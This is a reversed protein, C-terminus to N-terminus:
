RLSLTKKLDTYEAADIEGRALREDLIAQAGPGRDVSTPESTRTGRFIMVVALVLLGWFIVMAIMMLAWDGSGAGYGWNMM